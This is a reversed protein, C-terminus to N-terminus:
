DLQSLRYEIGDSTVLGYEEFKKRNEENYPITEGGPLLIFARKARGCAKAFEGSTLTPQWGHKRAHFEYINNETCMKRTKMSTNCLNNVDVCSFLSKILELQVDDNADEFEINGPVTLKKDAKLIVLARSNYLLGFVGKTVQANWPQHNEDFPAKIVSGVNQKMALFILFAKARPMKGVKINEDGLVFEHTKYWEFFENFNDKNTYSATSISGVM